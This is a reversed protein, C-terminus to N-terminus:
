GRRLRREERVWREVSQGEGPSGWESRGEKVAVWSEELGLPKENARATKEPSEGVYVNWGTANKESGRMRVVFRISGNGELLLAESPASEQGWGNTWSVRVYFAGVPGAGDERVVEPANPAKLPQAVVGVGSDWVKELSRRYLVDFTRYRREYRDNGQSCSADRFTLALTLLAHCRRMPASAVVHGLGFGDAAAGTRILFREIELGLEEWALRLKAGLDIAASKALDFIGSEHDRLDVLGALEGDIYLAM